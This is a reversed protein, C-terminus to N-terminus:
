EEMDLYNKGFIKMFEARTHTREFAEQGERKLYDAVAICQHASVRSTRHCGPCLWVKLGHAESKKRNATGFFVHHVELNYPSLDIGEGYKARCMYCEKKDQMISKAM